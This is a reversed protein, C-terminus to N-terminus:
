HLRHKQIESHKRKLEQYKHSEFSLGTQTKDDSIYTGINDLLVIYQGRYIVNM